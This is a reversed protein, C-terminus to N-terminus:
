AQSWNLDGNEVGAAVSPLLPLRRALVLFSDCQARTLGAEAAAYEAITRYGLVCHVKRNQIQLLYHCSRVLSRKLQQVSEVFKHHLALEAPTASTSISESM